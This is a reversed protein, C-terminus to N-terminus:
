DAAAADLMTKILSAAEARTAKSNARFTGDPYGQLIGRGYAVAVGELAWSEIDGVDLFPLKTESAMVNQTTTKAAHLARALMVAIEQRTIGDLPRFRGEAGLVIGSAAATNVASAYWDGVNVDKFSVPQGTGQLGLARVLMVSFEARSVPQNPDFMGPSTGDVIHKAAMVEVIQRAWHGKMDKFTVLSEALMVSSMRSTLFSLKGNKVSGSLYEWKGTDANLVYAGLKEPNVTGEPIKVTLAISQSIDYLYAEGSMGNITFITRKVTDKPAGPLSQEAPTRLGVTMAAQATLAEPAVTLEITGDSIQFAKHEQILASLVIVPLRVARGIESVDPAASVDIILVPNAPDRVKEVAQDADVRLVGDTGQLLLSGSGGGTPSADITGTLISPDQASGAEPMIVTIVSSAGGEGSANIGSIRYYRTEGAPPASITCSTKEALQDLSKQFAWYPDDSEYLHYGTTYALPSWELVVKGDKWEGQVAGTMPPPVDEKATSFHITREKVISGGVTEIAPIELEYETNFALDYATSGGSGTLPLFFFTGDLTTQPSYSRAGAESVADITRDFPLEKGNGRLKIDALVEEPHAAPISLSFWMMGEVSVGTAGDDLWYAADPVMSATYKGNSAPATFAFVTDKNSRFAGLSVQNNATLYSNLHVNYTKGAEFPTKDAVELIYSSGVPMGPISHNKAASSRLSVVAIRNGSKVTNEFIAFQAPVANVEPLNKDFWVQLHTNDLYKYGLFHFSKGGQGNLAQAMDAFYGSLGSFSLLLVLVWVAAARVRHKRFQRVVDVSM